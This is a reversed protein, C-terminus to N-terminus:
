SNISALTVIFLAQGKFIGKCLKEIDSKAQNKNTYFTANEAKSFPHWSGNNRNYCMPEVKENGNWKVIAFLGETKDALRKDGAVTIPKM